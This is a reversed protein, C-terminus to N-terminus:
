CNNEEADEEYNQQEDKLGYMSEYSPPPMGTPSAYKEVTVTITPLSPTPPPGPYHGMSGSPPATAAYQDFNTAGDVELSAYMDEVCTMNSPRNACHLPLSPPRAASVVSTNTLIHLDSSNDNGPHSNEVNRALPSEDYTSKVSPCFSISDLSATFEEKEDETPKSVFSDDSDDFTVWGHGYGGEKVNGRSGILPFIDSEVGTILIGNSRPISASSRSSNGCPRSVSILNQMRAAESEIEEM